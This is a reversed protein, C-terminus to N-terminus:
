DTILKCAVNRIWFAGRAYVFVLEGSVGEAKLEDTIRRRFADSNEGIQAQWRSWALWDARPITGHAITTPHIRELGAVAIDPMNHTRPVETEEFHIQKIRSTPGFKM